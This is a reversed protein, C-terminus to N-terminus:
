IVAYIPSGSRAAGAPRGACPSRRLNPPKKETVTGIRARSCDLAVTRKSWPGALAPHALDLHALTKLTRRGPEGPWPHPGPRHGPVGIAGRTVMLAPPERRAMWRMSVSEPAAPNAHSQGNTM